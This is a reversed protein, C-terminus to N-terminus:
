VLLAHSRTSELRAAIDHAVAIDLLHFASSLDSWPYTATELTQYVTRRVARTIRWTDVRVPETYGSEAFPVFIAMGMMQMTFAFCVIRHHDVIDDVQGYFNAILQRNAFWATFQVCLWGIEVEVIAEKEAILRLVMEFYQRHTTSITVQTHRAYCHGIGIM